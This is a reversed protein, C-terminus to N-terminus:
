IILRVGGLESIQYPFRDGPSGIFMFNKPVNWEASLRDILEPGFHGQMAVFDVRIQEYARDLVEIDKMLEPSYTEGERLLTVIKLRNTFENEVVYAMVKNLNAVNDGKTFFVFEQQHLERM